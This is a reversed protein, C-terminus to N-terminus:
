PTEGGVRDRKGLLWGISLGSVYAFLAFASIYSQILLSVFALFLAFIINITIGNM